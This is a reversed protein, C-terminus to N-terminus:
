GQWYKHEKKKDLMEATEIITDGNKDTYKKKHKNTLHDGDDFDMNSRADYDYRMDEVQAMYNGFEVGLGELDSITNSLIERFKDLEELHKEYNM